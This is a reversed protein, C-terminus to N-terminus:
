VITVYHTLLPSSHPLPWEHRIIPSYDTALVLRSLELYHNSMNRARLIRIKLVLTCLICKESLRVKSKGACTHQNDWWYGKTKRQSESTNKLTHFNWTAHPIKISSWTALMLGGQLEKTLIWSFFLCDSPDQCAFSCPAYYIKWFPVNKSSVEWGRDNKHIKPAPGSSLYVVIQKHLGYKRFFSRGCFPRPIGPKFACFGENNRYSPNSQYHIPPSFWIFFQPSVFKVFRAYSVEGDRIKVCNWALKVCPGEAM